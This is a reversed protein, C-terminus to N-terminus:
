GLPTYNIKLRQISHHFIPFISYQTYFASFLKVKIETKGFTDSFSKM